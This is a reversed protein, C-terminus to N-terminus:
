LQIEDVIARQALKVIRICGGFKMVVRENDTSTETVKENAKKVELNERSSKHHHKKKTGGDLM